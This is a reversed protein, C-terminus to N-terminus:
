DLLEVLRHDRIEILPGDHERVWGRVLIRRGALQEVASHVQEFEEAAKQDLKVTVDTKWHRGFNLYAGNRVRNASVLRGIILQFRDVEVHSPRAPRIRYFPHAWLGRRAVRAEQEAVLLQRSLAEEAPLAVIRAHGARLVARQLLEGEDLFVLSPQRGYRDPSDVEPVLTIHRNEILRVLALRAAEEPAWGLTRDPGPPATPARVFSLRIESGDELAFSDGSLVSLVRLNRTPEAGFATPLGALLSLGLMVARLKAPSPRKGKIGNAHGPLLQLM